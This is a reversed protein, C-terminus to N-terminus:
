AVRSFGASPRCEMLQAEHGTQSEYAGPLWASVAEFQDSAVLAVVAGGFGAGTMKAGAVGDAQWLLEAMTDLEPCSVEFDDRLSRHSESMLAGLQGFDGAKLAAVAARVRANENVVHRARRRVVPDSALAKATQVDAPLLSRLPRDLLAEARECEARRENYRSSALSREVATDALLIRYRDNALPVRQWELRGCDLELAHGEKGKAVAFPDLMGCALGVFDNEAAQAIRVLSLDLDREGTIPAGFQDDLVGAFGLTLSASSSLGRGPPLDSQLLVDLGQAPWPAGRADIWASIVGLLYDRWHGQAGEKRQGPDLEVTEAFTESHVRFRSDPRPAVLFRTGQAIAIPLVRGGTYDTHEGLLNVRGPSWYAAAPAQGFREHFQGIDPSAPM